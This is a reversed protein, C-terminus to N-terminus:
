VMRRMPTNVYRILNKLQQPGALIHRNGMVIEKPFNDATFIGFDHEPFLGLTLAYRLNAVMGRPPEDLAEYIGVHAPLAIGRRGLDLLIHKFARFFVAFFYRQRTENWVRGRFPINTPLGVEGIEYAKGIAAVQEMVKKLLDLSAFISKKGKKAESFPLHWVGPYCDLLIVDFHTFVHRYTHLYDLADMGVFRALNGVVLSGALKIDPNYSSMARGTIRCLEIVDEQLIPTYVKNNLENLVQVRSIKRRTQLSKYLWELKKVVERVYREYAVFFENKDEKYLKLAWDPISSLVITPPELELTNMVACALGYRHLTKTDYLGRAPEILKWRWDYRVSTIGTAKIGSYLNRLVHVNGTDARDPSHDTVFFNIGQM